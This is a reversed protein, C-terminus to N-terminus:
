QAYMSKAIVNPILEAVKGGAFEVQYTRMVLVPSTHFRGMINGNAGHSRALEHGKALQDGRPLLIKAGIYHEGVEPMPELEESLQSFSQENQTEDEYPDYWPTSLRVWHRGDRKTPIPIHVKVSKPWPSNKPMQGTKAQCSMQLYNGILQGISYKEMRLSFM